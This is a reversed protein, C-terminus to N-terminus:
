ALFFLARPEPRYSLLLTLPRTSWVLACSLSAIPFQFDPLVIVQLRGRFAPTRLVLRM